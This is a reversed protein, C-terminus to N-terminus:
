KELEIFLIQEINVKSHKYMPNSTLGYNCDKVEYLNHLKQYDKSEFSFSGVINAGYDSIRITLPDVYEASDLKPYKKKFPSNTNDCSDKFLEDYIIEKSVYIHTNINKILVDRIIELITAVNEKPVARNLIKVSM